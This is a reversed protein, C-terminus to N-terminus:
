SQSNQNTEYMDKKFASLLYTICVMHFVIASLLCTFQTKDYSIDIAYFYSGLM